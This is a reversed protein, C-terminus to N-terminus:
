RNASEMAKARTLAADPSMPAIPSNNQGYEPVNRNSEDTARKYKGSGVQYDKDAM